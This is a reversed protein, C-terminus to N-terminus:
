AKPPKGKAFQFWLPLQAALEGEGDLVISKGAVESWAEHGLYVAVFDAIDGRVTADIGFGPDKLCIDAGSRELVLWMVRFKTRRAPVGSFEFRLVLRRDPLADVDIRRSLGYMLLGPDLDDREILDRTHRWGWEGLAFIVPGLEEGAPTLWYEYGAGSGRRRRELLGHDELERLRAVLVARSILPLGRYIGNFSHEGALLERLVLPMWRTAFIEAAKAVPCFQGYSATMPLM